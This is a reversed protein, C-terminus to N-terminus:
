KDQIFERWEADNLPFRPGPHENLPFPKQAEKPRHRLLSYDASSFWGFRGSETAIVRQLDSPSALKDAYLRRSWGHYIAATTTASKDIYARFGAINADTRGEHAIHYDHFYWGSYGFPAFSLETPLLIGARISREALVIQVRSHDLAYKIQLTTWLNLAAVLALPSWYGLASWWDRREMTPEIARERTVAFVGFVALELFYYDWLGGRLGLPVLCAIAYVVKDWRVTFGRALWGAVALAVLIKVHLWGLNGALSAYEPWVLTREDFVMLACTILLLLDRVPWSWRAAASSRTPRQSFFAGWGAALLFALTGARLVPLVNQQLAGREFAHDFMHDTLLSQAHTKNMGQGVGWYFASGTVVILAPTWLWRARPKAGLAKLVELGPMVLWTLASQRSTVALIWALAFLWWRKTETAWLALLLCPIYIAMGTFEVSKWLLTPFTLLLVSGFCATRTEGGRQRFLQCSAWFGVGALAALLGHIALHFKGTAAYLLASLVSLSAAWPELWDDTWPRGHQLTAVVSKLYGFDDNIAIVQAPLLLFVGGAFLLGTALDIRAFKWAPSTPM